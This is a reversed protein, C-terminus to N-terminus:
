TRFVKEQQKQKRESTISIIKSTATQRKHTFTELFVQKLLFSIKLPYLISTSHTQVHLKTAYSSMAQRLLLYFTEINVKTFDGDVTMTLNRSCYPRSPLPTM